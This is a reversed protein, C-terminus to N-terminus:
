NECLGFYDFINVEENLSSMVYAVCLNALVIPSVNLIQLFLKFLINTLM